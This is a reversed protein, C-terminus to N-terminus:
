LKSTAQPGALSTVVTQYERQADQIAELLLDFYARTPKVRDQASRDATMGNLLAGYRAVADQHVKRLADAQSLWAQLAQISAPQNAERSLRISRALDWLGRDVYDFTEALRTADDRFNMPLNTLIASPRRARPDPM